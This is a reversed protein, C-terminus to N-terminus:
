LCEAVSILGLAGVGRGTVTGTPGNTRNQKAVSPHVGSSFTFVGSGARSTPWKSRTSALLLGRLDVTALSPAQLSERSITQM